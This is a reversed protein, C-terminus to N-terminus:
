LPYRSKPLLVTVARVVMLSRNLAICIVSTLNLCFVQSKMPTSGLVGMRYKAIGLVGFSRMSRAAM